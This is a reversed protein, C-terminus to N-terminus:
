QGIRSRALALDAADVRGNGDLDALLDYGGSRILASIAALDASTIRDDGTVDGLNTSISYGTRGSTLGVNGVLDAIGTPDLTLALTGKVLPSTLSWSLTNTGSGAFGTLGTGTLIGAAATVPEDFVAEVGVIQFPLRTRAGPAMLDYRLGGAAVVYFNTLRAPTKDIRYAQGTFGETPVNGAVDTVGATTVFNLGLDGDGTGTSATVTYTTGSGTLDTITAGSVGTQALDFKAATLGTVSESFTVTWSVSAARTPSAGVRTISLVAPPTTDVTTNTVTPPTFTLNSNVGSNMITGGNLDLSTATVTVAGTDGAQVEYGFFLQDGPSGSTYTAFRTASGIQVALRPTGGTTGVTVASSYDVRFTLTMGARYFGQAPVAVRVINAAPTLNELSFTATGTAGVASATVTYPGGITGNATVSQSAKGDTGIAVTYSTQSLSAESTPATLTVAGGAVPEGQNVPAVTTELATAFAASRVASQPTGATASLTFGGSEFAGLDTNGVRSKGRADAAPVDDATGANIAPSGPLLPVTQVPGGYDGLPGLRPASVGVQNNNTGNTLGTMGTGVGILNHSSFEVAVPGSVDPGAANTNGAILSNILFLNSSRNRIGGGNAGRATNGTITVNILTAQGGDDNFLGGGSGTSTNGTLTVNTLSLEGDNNIGGGGGFNADSSDRITANSLVLTGQNNISGGAGDAQGRAFEVNSIVAFAGDLVTLHRSQNEADLVVGAAPGEITTTGGTSIDAILLEAGGLLITQKTAFVTPDFTITNPGADLDAYLVAEALSLKDAADTTTDVVFPGHFTFEYAGIDPLAFSVRPNGTGRQDTTLDFEGGVDGANFAPSFFNIAMTRTPGGNDALAALGPDVGLLNFLTSEFAEGGAANTELLNGAGTLVPLSAGNLATRGVDAAGGPTDALITNSMALSAESGVYGSGSGLDSVLYVAGGGQAATNGALTSQLFIMSGNRSFVAGGLGSGNKDSTGGVGGTATNGTLTSNSITLTGSENFVAGGMGAGGGNSGSGGFGGQGIFGGGGGFGGNGFASGGGGFGGNGGAFTGGGGFGGAGGYGVGANPGGGTDNDANTGLGGGGNGAVNSGVGGVANNGTLLSNVLSVTGRRNFIAGGMGAGGGSGAGGQALGGSLTLNELTLSANSETGSGGYVYFLRFASASSRAISVPFDTPGQIVVPTSIRFASPGAEDADTGTDFETVVVGTGPRFGSTDFTIVSKNPNANAAAIAERLSLKNDTADVVDQQTDVVFSDSVDAEFAGIDAAAGKVRAFGTGRQDTTLATSGGADFAPSTPTIALTRTPGGNDALAALQPDASSVRVGAALTLPTAEILNGVGTVDPAAAGGISDALATGLDSAGGATDALISSTISVTARGGSGAGTFGDGSSGDTAAFVAGGGQAATNGALTAHTLTVSGNRTFIAGGLGKGANGGTGGQATNATLTSNAITLTGSENFIAGGFGAGGGGGTGTANGGGFGGRGAPDGTGGGGGFGGNGGGQPAGVFATTGGGGGFGGSGANNRGTGGGGGFGGGPPTASTQSAPGGNPGGGAASGGNFGGDAGMGGGGGRGSQTRTTDGGVAQNDSLLSNRVTVTGRRNFIAGGAGLAGGAFLGGNGGRALGGSLTLNELTLSANSETGAGGYVYFLRFNSAGSARQITVGNNGTPGTITIPTSIRFASPGAEDTDLGIDFLTLDITADGGAVLAPAFLIVSPNPNANADRIAERLTTDLDPTLDDALSTVVFAGEPTAASVTNSQGNIPVNPDNPDEYTATVTALVTRSGAATVVRRRFTFTGSGAAPVTAPSGVYATTDTGDGGPNYAITGTSLTAAGVVNSTDLSGDADADTAWNSTATTGDATLRVSGANLTVNGTGTNAPAVNVYQTRYEIIRGPQLAGDPLATTGPTAPYDHIVTTGDAALVRADTTLKLFGTYVRNLTLNADADDALGNGNADIFAVVPVTFGKGTFTSQQTGAPLDIQVSYNATAGGAVADLRVPNTAAVPNGGVVGSGNVFTFATGNFSYTASAVGVSITVVTNTPLTADAAGATFGALTPLLAISLPPTGANQVTNTFSVATPDFTADPALDALVTSSRITFDDNTTTASATPAGSPGHKVFAAPTAEFAGIDVTGGKVRDFGTGRQDTTLGATTAVANSGANVAPGATIALTKTPGGNDQLTGLGPDGGIFSGQFGAAGGADTEILDNGGSGIISETGLAKAQAFDTAGGISDALISNNITYTAFGAVFGGSSSGNGDSVVFVAGGGLAATNGALTSQTVTTTGNRTFIAGGLGKGAAAGGVGGNGGQATNATLTSNEITLTGSENFVAGGMGAGGGGVGGTGGNGGGFGATGGGGSGGGGFGGKGANQAGFGGGGGFGGNGGRGNFGTAGGGGGGFGGNGGTGNEAGATGGNPGGGAM